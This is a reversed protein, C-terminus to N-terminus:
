DHQDAGESELPPKGRELQSTRWQLIEIQDKLERVEERLEENQKRTEELELDQRRITETDFARAREYADKEMDTRSTLSTNTTSAKAASRQSAYASLAAIVAVTITAITSFDM